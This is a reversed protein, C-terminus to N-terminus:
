SMGPSIAGRPILRTLSHKLSVAMAALARGALSSLEAISWSILYVVDDRLSFAACILGAVEHGDVPVAMYANCGM